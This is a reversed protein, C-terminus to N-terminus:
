ETTQFKRIDGGQPADDLGHASVQLYHGVEGVAIDADVLELLKTLRNFGSLVM